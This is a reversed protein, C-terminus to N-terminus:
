RYVDHDGVDHYLVSDTGIFEFLVRNRRDVRYSWLGKLSGKLPHTHLRPHFADAKFFREQAILKDQIARSLLGFSRTYRSVVAITRIPRAM